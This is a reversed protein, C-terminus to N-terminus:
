WRMPCRIASSPSVASNWCNPPAPRMPACDGPPNDSPAKVLEALMAAMNAQEATVFAHIAAAAATDITM